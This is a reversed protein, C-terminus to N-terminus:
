PLIIFNASIPLDEKEAKEFRKMFNLITFGVIEEKFNKHVVVDDGIEESIAEEPEGASIELIDGEKDYSIKLRKEM